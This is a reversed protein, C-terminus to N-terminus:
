RGEEDLDPVKLLRTDRPGYYGHMAIDILDRELYVSVRAVDNFTVLLTWRDELCRKLLLMQLSTNRGQGDIILMTGPQLDIVEREGEPKWQVWPLSRGDHQDNSM